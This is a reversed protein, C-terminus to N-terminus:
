NNFETSYDLHKYFTGMSLHQKIDAIYLTYKFISLICFYNQSHLVVEDKLFKYNPLYFVNM